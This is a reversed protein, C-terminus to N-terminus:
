QFYIKSASGTKGKIKKNKKEIEGGDRAMVEKHHEILIKIDLSREEETPEYDQFSQKNKARELNFRMEKLPLTQLDRPDTQACVDLVKQYIEITEEFRREKHYIWGLFHYGRYHDPTHKIDEKFAEIAEEIKGMDYYCWGLHYYSNEDPIDLTLGTCGLSIAKENDKKDAYVNGLYQHPASLIPDAEISKQLALIAKEYDGDM